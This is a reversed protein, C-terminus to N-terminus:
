QPKAPTARGFKRLNEKRAKKTARIQEQRQEKEAPTQYSTRRNPPPTSDGCTPFLNLSESFLFM